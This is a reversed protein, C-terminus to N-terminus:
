IMSFINVNWGQLIKGVEVVIIGVKENVDGFMILLNGNIVGIFIEKIWENIVDFISEM